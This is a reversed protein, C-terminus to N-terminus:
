NLAILVRMASDLARETAARLDTALVGLGIQSACCCGCAVCDVQTPRQATECCVRWLPTGTRFWGPQLRM